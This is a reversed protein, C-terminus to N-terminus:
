GRREEDVQEENLLKRVADLEFIIQKFWLEYTQHTIIFLHEDHVEIQRHKTFKTRTVPEQCSLLRDLLLYDGYLMGADPDSWLSTLNVRMTGKTEPAGSSSAGSDNLLRDFPRVKADGGVPCSM